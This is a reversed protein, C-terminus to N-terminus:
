CYSAEKYLGCLYDYAHGDENPRLFTRDNVYFFNHRKVIRAFELGRVYCRVEVNKECCSKVGKIFEAYDKTRRWPDFEVEITKM